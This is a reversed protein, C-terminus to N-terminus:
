QLFFGGDHAHKIRGWCERWSEGIQLSRVVVGEKMRGQVPEGVLMGARSKHSDGCMNRICKKHRGGFSSARGRGMIFIMGKEWKVAWELCKCTIWLVKFNEAQNLIIAHLQGFMICNNRNYLIIWKSMQISIVTICKWIKETPHLHIWVGRM